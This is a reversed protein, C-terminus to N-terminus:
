AAGNREFVVQGSVLTTRVRGQLEYGLFPTNKGQSILAGRTARWAGDPDFVCVDARAGPRLHGTELGLIRAPEMTVRALAQALPVKMEQAWKLTLPLLLELGTAGIEAEGFPLQKADDDVPTHDSCVADISGDALGRRLAERDSQSRLPPDM